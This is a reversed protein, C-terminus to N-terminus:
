LRKYTFIGSNNELYLSDPGLQLISFTDNSLILQGNWIRWSTYPNSEAEVSSEVVGDDKIEFNKDLSIWRGRLSNINIVKQAVLQGDVSHAIVALKDGPYIGGQVDAVTDVDELLFFLTDGKEDIMSFTSMGGELCNGYLTTDTRQTLSDSSPASNDTTNKKGCCAFTLVMLAVLPLLITHKM